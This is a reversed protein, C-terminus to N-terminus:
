RQGIPRGPGIPPREPLLHLAARDVETLVAWADPEPQRHAEQETLDQALADIARAANEM